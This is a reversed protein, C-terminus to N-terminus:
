LMNCILYLGRIFQTREANLAVHKVTKANNPIGGGVSSIKMVNIGFIDMMLEKVFKRDCTGFSELINWRKLEYVTNRRLIIKGQEYLRDGAQQLLFSCLNFFHNPFM